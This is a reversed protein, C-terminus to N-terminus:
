NRFLEENILANLVQKQTAENDQINTNTLRLAEIRKDVDVSTIAVGDVVVLVQSAFCFNSILTFLLLFIYKMPLYFILKTLSIM